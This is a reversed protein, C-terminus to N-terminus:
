SPDGNTTPDLTDPDLGHQRAIERLALWVPGTPTRRSTEWSAVTQPTVGLAAGFALQTMGLTSRASRVRDAPTM